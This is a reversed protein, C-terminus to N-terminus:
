DRAVILTVQGDKNYDAEAGEIAWSGNYIYIYPPKRTRLYHQLDDVMHGDKWMLKKIFVPGETRANLVQKVRHLLRSEGAGGKVGYFKPDGEERTVTCTNEELTVKM